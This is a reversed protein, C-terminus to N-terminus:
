TTENTMVSITVADITCPRPATARLCLRADTDWQGPLTFMPEDYEEWVITQDVSGGAETQPLEDMVEFSQGYELGQAHTDRMILGMREIRKKQNLATGMQAGYALKASKFSGTYGLGVCARTVAAPLGTIQGGTVTFTGLDRGVTVTSGDPATATFPTGTHWGWVVVEEGELHALGGITTSSVGQYIVHSDALRAEPRGSCQDRRAAREVFRKDVGGITRKVVCYIKDELIGPLVIADEFAGNTTQRWWCEVGDDSDFVLSALEGNGLRAHIVTDPQRQVAISFFQSNGLSTNLRTLDRAKYDQADVSFGLEYVKRGSKQVFVGRTDIKVAAVNKSSGQTSCDKISFNTPTLPEDFSSSRISAESGERGVIIRTLPLIWNIRDVPGSGLTRNIPGADGDFDIDFSSYADSISGWIKDRGSWWLRGEQITVADPWGRADSWDGENWDTTATLSSFPKVIEVGVSTPNTFTVVRCLGAAGGQSTSLTVTATGSTYDGAKFGIRYWAISNNLGDGFTDTVNGTFAAVDTFGTTASDFSRQMTITGSWTGSIVRAFNRVDDVGTIRIANTFSNSASLSASVTQGTSFLRFLAGVHGSNFFARSSSLTANGTLASPTLSTDTGNATGFPGDEFVYDAFSWSRAARREIRKPSQGYCACFLVDGSQVFRINSLDAFGWSTPVTLDGGAEFTVSGIIKGAGTTTDLRIFIDGSPTIGFSHTGTNLTTEAVYDDAGDSTGARFIVPGRTVVVRLGHEVGVASISIQKSARAVGGVSPCALTLFGPSIVASSGSGSTTLTWGTASSFDGAVVTDGHSPRSILTETTELTSENESVQWVRMTNATLEIIATDSNSFIFPLLRGSLDGRMAGVYQYGPRLMMPGLTFPLFNEQREASLRLREIDVRALADKSIEGRNLANLSTHVRAM